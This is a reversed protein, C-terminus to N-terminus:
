FILRLIEEELEKARKLQSVLFPTEGHKLIWREFRKEISVERSGSHYKDALCVLKEELSHPLYDLNPLGFEVAEEATLGALSHTEAIRALEESYGQKRLFIGGELGHSMDHTKYRGIDHVLAGIRVLEINVDAKTINYALDLAKRMVAVQHNIINRPIKLRKMLQMAENKSPLVLKTLNESSQVELSDISSSGLKADIKSENDPDNKSENESGNKPENIPKTKKGLNKETDVM